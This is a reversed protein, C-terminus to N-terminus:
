KKRRQTEHPRLPTKEARFSQERFAHRETYAMMRNRLCGYVTVGALPLFALVMPRWYIGALCLVGGIAICIATLARHERLWKKKFYCIRDHLCFCSDVSLASLLNEDAAKKLQSTEEIREGSLLENVSVGLILSLEQLKDIDPMYRGTEWRSITKNSVGLMEGLREQTIGMKKRESGIFRGIKEQDM